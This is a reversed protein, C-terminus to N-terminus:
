QLREWLPLSLASKRNFIIRKRPSVNRTTIRMAETALAWFQLVVHPDPFDALDTGYGNPNESPHPIRNFQESLLLSIAILLNVTWFIVEFLMKRLRGAFHSRGTSDAARKNPGFKPGVQFLLRSKWLQGCWCFPQRM